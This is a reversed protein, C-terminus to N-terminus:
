SSSVSALRAFKAPLPATWRACFVMMPMLLTVGPLRSSRRAMTLCTVVSRDSKDLPISVTSVHSSPTDPVTSTTCRLRSTYRYQNEGAPIVPKSRAVM